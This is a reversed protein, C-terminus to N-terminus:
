AFLLVIPVGVFLRYMKTARFNTSLCAFKAFFQKNKSNEQEWFHINTLAKFIQEPLRFLACYIVIILVLPEFTDGSHRMQAYYEEGDVM